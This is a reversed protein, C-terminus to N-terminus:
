NTVGTRSTIPIKLKIHLITNIFFNITNHFFRRCLTNSLRLMHIVFIISYATKTYLFNFLKDTATPYNIHTSDLCSHISILVENFILFIVLFM